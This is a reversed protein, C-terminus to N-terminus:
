LKKKEGILSSVQNNFLDNIAVENNDNEFYDKKHHNFYKMNLKIEGNDKFFIIKKLEDKYKEEGYSAM